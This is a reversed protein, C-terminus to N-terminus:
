EIKFKFNISSQHRKSEEQIWEDIKDEVEPHLHKKYDGVVGERMFKSENKDRIGFTDWHEYNTRPDKKM